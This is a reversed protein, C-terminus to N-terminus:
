FSSLGVLFEVFITVAIADKLFRGVVKYPDDNRVADALAVFGVAISWIITEKLHTASWLGAQNLLWVACAMYTTMVAIISLIARRFTVRLIPGVLKFINVHTSAWIIGIALWM